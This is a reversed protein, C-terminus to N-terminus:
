TDRVEECACRRKFLKEFTSWEIIVIPNPLAKKKHIIMYDLGEATNAQAQTITGMLNFGESSKCEIAYPFKEYAEGRLIIDTGHQGGPRVAILSQDNGQSWDIGLLKSIRDAVWRQLNMGKQKASAITIRKKSSILKKRISFMEKSCEGEAEIMALIEKIEKDTLQVWRTM